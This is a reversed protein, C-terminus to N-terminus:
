SYNEMIGKSSNKHKKDFEFRPERDYFEDFQILELHYDKWECESLQSFRHVLKM